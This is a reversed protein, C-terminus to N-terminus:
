LLTTACCLKLNKQALTAVDGRYKVAIRMQIVQSRALNIATSESFKLCKSALTMLTMTQGELRNTGNQRQKAEKHISKEAGSIPLLKMTKQSRPCALHLPPLSVRTLIDKLFSFRQCLESAM